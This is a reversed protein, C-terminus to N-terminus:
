DRNSINVGILSGLIILCCKALIIYWSSYEFNKNLAKFTFMFGLYLFVILLGNILGRRKEKIGFILGYLFFLIMSLAIMVIDNVNVPILNFTTLLSVIVTLTMGLITVLITTISFNFLKNKM